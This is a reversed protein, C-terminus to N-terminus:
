KAPRLSPDLKYAKELYIGANNEDGKFRYTLGIFYYAQAYNPDYKVANFLSTLANDYQQMMGYASGANAHAEAYRPDLETAKNFAKLAEPFKQTTFYVTGINNHITANGPNLALAKQYCIMASDNNNLKFYAVGMQTFADSFGPFIEVSKQLESIGRYLTQKKVEESKGEWAEPKVLYNGLYYHTRTSNPSLKVDNSYLTYNNRWVPNRTITKFGYLIVIFAMAANMMKNASLLDLVPKKNDEGDTKVLKVLLLGMAFCFGLSPTYLFREGMSSGIMIFLNSSVSLTILYFLIAFSFLNRNRFTYLAYAFLALYIVFAIWFGANSVDALPIQNYSYDFVLPHPFFLIKLYLGLILIATTYRTLPDKAAALLNDAVSVSEPVQNGLVGARILLFLLAMAALPIAAKLIEAWKERTFFWGALPFVAVFTIASEKSLFALFYCVSAAILSGRKKHRLFSIYQDLAIFSFLFALMEDRSKINAVVETHVPHAIFLAAVAFALLNNGSIRKLGFFLVIGTLAYFLINFFHGPWAKGPAMDWEAAYMSKVLPRYLNDSTFYYGFRYSTKFIEPIASFGQKTVRNELIVSYDDLAFEHNITNGYLVVALLAIIMAPLWDSVPMTTEAVSAPKNSFKERRTLKKKEM